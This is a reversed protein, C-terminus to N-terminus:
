RPKPSKTTKAGRNTQSSKSHRHDSLRQDDADPLYHVGYEKPMGYLEPHIYKGKVEDDKEQETEYGYRQVYSDNRIGKVEWSVEVRPKSTRIVFQNDQIKRVVKALVFDDSDDIVTLQYRFDRNISDFYDPLQVTAYGRADTLVNGSYANMPEPAETCFHNLYHTEPWLPHDIQFSKTGSAAFDGASYVGFGSPSYSRGYVGYTTGTSANAIGYVGRGSDSWSIGYVGYNQGTYADATGYVGRGTTSASAGLVGCNTGTTATANGLVGRGSISNSEFRGGYTTGSTASHLGFIAREGTSTLVHLPYSPSSTGIGVDGVTYYISNGSQTWLLDTLDASPDWASGNWKLVQGSLPATASVPRGQLGDVLPNPYTGILDGGASGSPPPLAAWRASGNADSTLVRGSGAGASMRFASTQVTSAILTGGINVHGTQPIGPTSPQLRVLGWAEAPQGQYSDLEVEPSTAMVYFEGGSSLPGRQLAVEYSGSHVVMEGAVRHVLARNGKDFFHFAVPFEGDRAGGEVRGSLVVVDESRGPIRLLVLVLVCLLVLLLLSTFSRM